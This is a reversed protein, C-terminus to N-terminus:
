HGLEPFQAKLNESIVYRDLYPQRKMAPTIPEKVDNCMAKVQSHVMLLTTYFAAKSELNSFNTVKPQKTITSHIANSDTM